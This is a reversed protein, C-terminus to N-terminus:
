PSASPGNEIRTEPVPWDGYHQEAVQVTPSQIKQNDTKEEPVLEPDAKHDPETGDEPDETGTEQIDPNTEESIDETGDEDTETVDQGPTGETTPTDPGVTEGQTDQAGAHDQGMEDLAAGLQVSTKLPFTGYEEKLRTDYPFAEAQDAQKTFWDRYHLPSDFPQITDPQEENGTANLYIIGGSEADTRENIIRFYFCEEATGNWIGAFAGEQETGAVAGTAYCHAYTGGAKGILGGATSGNVSCTSYSYQVDTDGEGILGGGHIKANVNYVPDKRVGEEHTFYEGEETRGGSHCAYIEGAEATGVLGGANGNASQVELAAASGRISTDHTNGALGGATDTGKVAAGAGKARAEGIAVVNRIESGKLTGALAGANKGEVVFDILKLDSVHIKAPSGFLGAEDMNIYVRSITNGNGHYYLEYAPSIPYFGTNNTPITEGMMYVANTGTEQEYSPWKMDPTVQIAETIQISANEANIDSFREDLNELHRFARIKAVTKKMGNQTKGTTIGAYLSNATRETSFAINAYKVNSFAVAQVTIDEGPIFTVADAAADSELDAFHTNPYSLSDLTVRYKDLEITGVRNAPELTGIDNNRLLFTKVAASEKGKVILALSSQAKDEPDTNNDTVEVSLTENNVVHVMPAQLTIGTGLSEGGGYWGVVAGYYNKRAETDERREMIAEYDTIDFDRGFRGTGPCYFVDLVVAPRAQYRVIYSGTRVSAEVAYSPLIMEYVGTNEPMVTGASVAYYFVDGKIKRSEETEATEKTGFYGPNKAPDTGSYGQSAALTLHNQAAIFLEKAIAESELFAMSRQHKTIAVFAFGSLIGIIAVAAIMEVLTFGHNHEARMIKEKQM